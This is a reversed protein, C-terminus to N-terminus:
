RKDKAHPKTKPFHYDIVKWPPRTIVLTRMLDIPNFFIWLRIGSVLHSFPTFFFHEINEKAESLIVVMSFLYINDDQAFRLLINFM